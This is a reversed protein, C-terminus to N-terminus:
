KDQINYLKYNDADGTYLSYINRFTVKICM